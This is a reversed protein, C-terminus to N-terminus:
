LQNYIRLKRLMKSRAIGDAFGRGSMGTGSQDVLDFSFCVARKSRCCNSFHCPQGLFFNNKDALEVLLFDHGHVRAEKIFIIVVLRVM